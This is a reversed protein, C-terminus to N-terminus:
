NRVAADNRSRRPSSPGRASRPPWTAWPHEGVRKAVTDVRPTRGLYIAVGGTGALQVRDLKLWRPACADPLRRDAVVIDAQGCSRVLQVWPFLTSSRTALIRWRRGGRDLDAICSDRSCNVSPASRLEAPDGDFGSSEALLTRVFEGSRERLLLPTGDSSVLALHRGDGTVLLDPTPSIAAAVAGLTFPLLGLLRV